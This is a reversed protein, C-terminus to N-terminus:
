NMSPAIMVRARADCLVAVKTQLSISVFLLWRENCFWSSSVMMFHQVIADVTNSSSSSNSSQIPSQLAALRTSCPLLV